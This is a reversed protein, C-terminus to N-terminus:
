DFKKIPMAHANEYEHVLNYFTNSKLGSDKMAQVATIKGAKWQDYTAAFNAPAEIKPRGFRVGKKKAVAIGGSQRELRTTREREAMYALLHFIIDAILARAHNDDNMESFVPMDLVNIKIGMSTLENWETKMAQFNRGLRDISTITLEDGERLRSRLTKYQPRDFDKGSVKDVFLCDENDVYNRLEILQRDTHQDKTSVRAYAFRKTPM